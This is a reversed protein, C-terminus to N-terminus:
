SPRNWNPRFGVVGGAVPAMAVSPNDLRLSRGMAGQFEQVSPHDPGAQAELGKEARGFVRGLGQQAPTSRTLGQGGAYTAAATAGLTM